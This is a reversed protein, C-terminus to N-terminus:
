SFLNNKWIYPLLIDTRVTKSIALSENSIRKINNTSKLYRQLHIFKNFFNFM